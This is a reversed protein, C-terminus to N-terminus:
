FIFDLLPDMGFTKSGMDLLIKLVWKCKETYGMFDLYTAM